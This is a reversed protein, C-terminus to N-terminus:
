RTPPLSDFRPSLLGWTYLFFSGFSTCRHWYNVSPKMKVSVGCLGWTRRVKISIILSLSGLRLSQHSPRSIKLVPCFCFCVHTMNWLRHVVTRNRVLFCKRCFLTFSKCFQLIIPNMHSYWVSKCRYLFLYCTEHFKQTSVKQIIYFNVYPLCM